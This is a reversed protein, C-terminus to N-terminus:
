EYPERGWPVWIWRRFCIAAPLAVQMSGAAKARSAFGTCRHDLACRYMHDLAFQLAITSHESSDVSVCVKRRPLVLRDSSDGPGAPAEAGM